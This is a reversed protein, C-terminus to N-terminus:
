LITDVTAIGGSKLLAEIEEGEIDKDYMYLMDSLNRSIDSM